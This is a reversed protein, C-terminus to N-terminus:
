KEIPTKPVKVEKPVDTPVKVEKTIPEAIVFPGKHNAEEEPTCAITPVPDLKKEPKNTKNTKTKKTPPIDSIATPKTPKTKSKTEHPTLNKLPTLHTFKTPTPQGGLANLLATWIKRPKHGQTHSQCIQIAQDMLTQYDNSNMAEDPHTNTLQLVLPRTHAQISSQNKTYEGLRTQYKKLKAQEREINTRSQQIMTKLKTKEKETHCHQDWATM